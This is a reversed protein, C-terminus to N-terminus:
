RRASLAEARDYEGAALSELGTKDYVVALLVHLTPEDPSAAVAQLLERRADAYFRERMLGAAKLLAATAAPYRAPEVAATAARVQRAVEATAVDFAARQIGYGKSELEWRYRGPALRLDPPSALLPAEVGKKEWLVRGDATVIRVAYRATQPGEWELRLGDAAVLTDRPALLVVPSLDRSSRVTLSKRSPERPTSQLFGIASKVREAIGPQAPPAAVYPSNAPTVVTSRQTGVFVLVARGAGAVRVQDGESISLLPKAPLWEGGAAPKIEVQGDALHLETIVGIPEAARGPTAVAILAATLLWMRRM